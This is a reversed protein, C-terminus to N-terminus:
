TGETDLTQALQEANRPDLSCAQARCPTPVRQEILVASPLNQKTFATHAGCVAFLSRM